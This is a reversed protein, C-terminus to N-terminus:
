NDEEAKKEKVRELTTVRTKLSPRDFNEKITFGMQAVVKQFNSKLSSKIDKALSISFAEPKFALSESEDLFQIQSIKVPINAKPDNSLIEKILISHINKWEVLMWKFFNRFQIEEETVIIKSNFTRILSIISLILLYIGLGLWIFAFAWEWFTDKTQTFLIWFALVLFTIGTVLELIAFLIRRYKTDQSISYSQLADDKSSEHQKDDVQNVTEKQTM